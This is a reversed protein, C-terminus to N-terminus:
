PRVRPLRDPRTALVLRAGPLPKTAAPLANIIELLRPGVDRTQTRFPAFADDRDPFARFHLEVERGGRAPSHTTLRNFDPAPVLWWVVPALDLVLVVVYIWSPDKPISDEFYTANSQVFGSAGLGFCAKAQLSAFTSKGKVAVVLDRHDDDADVQFPVLEGDTTLMAYVALLFEGIRGAQVDSIKM